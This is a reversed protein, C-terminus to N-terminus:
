KEQNFADLDEKSIFFKVEGTSGDISAFVEALKKKFQFKSDATSVKLPLDMYTATRFLQKEM